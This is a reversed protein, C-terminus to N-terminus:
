DILLEDDGFQVSGKAKEKASKWQTYCVAVRQKNDKFDKKSTEDSMCRSIFDNKKEKKSPM